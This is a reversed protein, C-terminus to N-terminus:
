CLELEVCSLEVCRLEVCLRAHVRGRRGLGERGCAFKSVKCYEVRAPLGEAGKERSASCEAVIVAAEKGM